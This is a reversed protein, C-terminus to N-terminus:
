KENRDFRILIVNGDDYKMLSFMLNQRSKKLYLFRASLHIEFDFSEYLRNQM